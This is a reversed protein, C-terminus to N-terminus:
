HTLIKKKPDDDSYYKVALDEFQTFLTLMENSNQDARQRVASMKQMKNKATEM